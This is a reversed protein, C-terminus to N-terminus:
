KQRGVIQDIERRIVAQLADGFRRGFFAMSRPEYKNLDFYREPMTYGIYDGAFSTVVPTLGKAVTDGRIELALVGSYDCPTGILLCDGIRLFSLTTTRPFFWRSTIPSVALSQSIKIAPTPLDIQLQVFEIKPHADFRAVMNPMLDNAFSALKKGLLQSRADRVGFEGPGMSGVAGALFAVEGLNSKQMERVFVGPYDGSIRKDATPRCTAHASFAALTAVTKQNAITRFGLLDFWRNAPDSDVTRNKILEAPAEASVLATECPESLRRDAELLADTMSTAIADITAADTWGLGVSEAWRGAYGGPASHTHTASFYIREAPISPLQQSLKRDVADVLARNVLLLEAAVIAIKDGGRELVIARVSVADDEGTNPTFARNGYGALPLDRRGFNLPKTAMGVRLPKDVSLVVHLTERPNLAPTGWDIWGIPWPGTVVWLLFLVLLLVRAVRRFRLKSKSDGLPPEGFSPEKALAHEMIM